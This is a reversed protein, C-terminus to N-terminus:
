KKLQPGSESGSLETFIKVANTKKKKKKKKFTVEGAVSSSSITTSTCVQPLALFWREGPAWKKHVEQHSPQYKDSYREIDCKKEELTIFFPSQRCKVQIEQKVDM